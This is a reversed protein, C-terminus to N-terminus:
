QGHQLLTTNGIGATGMLRETEARAMTRLIYPGLFAAAEQLAQIEAARANRRIDFNAVLFDCKQHLDAALDGASNITSMTTDLDEKMRNLTAQVTTRTAQFAGLDLQAQHILDALNQDTTQWDTEKQEIDAQVTEYATKANTLVDEMLQLVNSGQSSKQYDEFGPADPDVPVPTPDERRQGQQQSEEVEWNTMDDNVTNKTQILEYLQRLRATAKNLTDVMIAQDAMDEQLDKVDKLYTQRAETKQEESITIENTKENVDREADALEAEKESIAAEQSAKTNAATGTEAANKTMESDCYDKEEIEDQQEKNLRKMMTNITDRIEDFPSRSLIKAALIAFMGNGSKAAEKKLVTAASRMSMMMKKQRNSSDIQLLSAPQLDAVRKGFLTFMRDNDILKICEKLESEEKARERKRKAFNDREDRCYQFIASYQLRKLREEEILRALEDKNLWWKSDADALEDKFKQVQEVNLQIQGEKTGRYNAFNHVLATLSANLDLEHRAFDNKMETIIGIVPGMTTDYSGHLAYQPENTKQLFSQKSTAMRIFAKLAVTKQGGLEMVKPLNAKELKRAAAQVQLFTSNSGTLANLASTLATLAAITNTKEEEKEGSERLYIQLQEALALRNAAEENEEGTLQIGIRAMMAVLEAIIDQLKSQEEASNGIGENLDKTRIKCYCDLEEYTAEDATQDRDLQLKMDKLLQVISRVPNTGQMEAQIAQQNTQDCHVRHVCSFAAVAVAISRFLTM